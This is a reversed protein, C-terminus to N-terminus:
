WIKMEKLDFSGKFFYIIITCFRWAVLELGFLGLIKVRIVVFFKVSM